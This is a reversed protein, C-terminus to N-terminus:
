PNTFPARLMNWLNLFLLRIRAGYGGLFPVPIRNKYRYAIYKQSPFIVRLTYRLMKFIDKINLSFKGLLLCNAILPNPYLHTKAPQRFGTNKYNFFWEFLKRRLYAPRIRELTGAPITNVHFEEKLIALTYYLATTVKRKIAKEEIRDWDIKPYYLLFEKLDCFWLLHRFGVNILRSALYLFQDEPCLTLVEVQAIKQPVAEKWYEEPHAFDPFDLSFLYFKIELKTGNKNEYSIHREMAVASLNELDLLDLNEKNIYGLKILTERISPWDEKKVLIDIDEMPRLSTDGYIKESIAAGKLIIVPIKNKKIEKLFQSLDYFLPATKLFSHVYSQKLNEIVWAPIDETNVKSLNRFVIPGVNNYVILSFFEEWDLYRRLTQGIYKKDTETIEKDCLKLIIEKELKQLTEKNNCRRVLDALDPNTLAAFFRLTGSIIRTLFHPRKLEWSSAKALLGNTKQWRPIELDIYLSGSEFRSIRAIINDRAIPIDPKEVNDGKLIVCFPNGLSIIRHVTLQNQTEFIVIDGCRLQEFAVRQGHIKDGPIFVPMMSQGTVEFDLTGKKDLGDKILPIVDKFEIRDKAAPIKHKQERHM